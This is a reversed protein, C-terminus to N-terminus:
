LQVTTCNQMIYFQPVREARKPTEEHDATKPSEGRDARESYLTIKCYKGDELNDDSARFYIGLNFYVLPLM